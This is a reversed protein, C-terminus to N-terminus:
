ELWLEYIRLIAAEGNATMGDAILNLPWEGKLKSFSRNNKEFYETIVHYATVILDNKILFASGNSNGCIVKCTIDFVNNSDNM